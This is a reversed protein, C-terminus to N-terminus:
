GPIRHGGAGDMSTQRLRLDAQYKYVRSFEKAGHDSRPTYPQMSVTGPHSSSGAPQETSAPTEESRPYDMGPELSMQVGIEDADGDIYKLHRLIQSTLSYAGLHENSPTDGNVGNVVIPGTVSDDTASTARDQYYDAHVDTARSFAELLNIPRNTSDVFGWEQSPPSANTSTQADM